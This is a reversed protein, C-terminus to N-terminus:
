KRIRRERKLLFKATMIIPPTGITSMSNPPAATTSGFVAATVDGIRGAVVSQTLSNAHSVCMVRKPFQAVGLNMITVRVGSLAIGDQEGITAIMGEIGIAEPPDVASVFSPPVAKISGFGATTIAGTRGAVASHTPFSVFSVSRDM